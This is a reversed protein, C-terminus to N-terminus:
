ILIFNITCAMLVDQGNQLPCKLTQVLVLLSIKNNIGMDLAKIVTAAEM